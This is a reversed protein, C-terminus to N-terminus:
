PYEIGQFQTVSVMPLTSKYRENIAKIFSNAIIANGRRTFGIGDLSFMGGSIYTPNFEIGDYVAGDAIQNILDFINVHAVFHDRARNRIIANFEDTKRKIYAVQIDTLILNAPLPTNELGFGQCMILDHASLLVLEGKRLQRKGEIGDDFWLGEGNIHSFYPYKLIDPINALAGGTASTRMRSLISNLYGDFDSEDIILNATGGSLAYDMIDTMGIWLSFFKPERSLADEIVSANPSSAFRNYYQYSSINMANLPLDLSTITAGPLGLNHFPGDETYISLINNEDPVGGASIPWIISDGSCNRIFGLVTKKGLGLEDRMLPQRFDGGGAHLIQRSLINPYSVIQGSKYLEHNAMGATHYCGLAVYSSFDAEGSEPMFEKIEPECCFLILAIMIIIYHYRKAM